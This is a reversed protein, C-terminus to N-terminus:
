LKNWANFKCGTPFNESPDCAWSGAFSKDASLFARMSGNPAIPASNSVHTGPWRGWQTGTGTGQSTSEFNAQSFTGTTTGSDTVTCTPVSCSASSTAATFTAFGAAITIAQGSWSGNLDTHAFTPLATANLQLVGFNFLEDV